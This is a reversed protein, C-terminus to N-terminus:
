SAEDLREQQPAGHEHLQRTVEMARITASLEKRRAEVLANVLRTQMTLVESLGDMKRHLDAIEVENKLNVQYDNQAVARDKAAQRNQSMLIVPAQLAALTSLTLNLLIFPFPDFARTGLYLNAGIWVAMLLCFSLIFRWSGAVTAIKDAMRDGFSAREDIEEYVDDTVLRPRLDGILRQAEPSLLSQLEEIEDILEQVRADPDDIPAAAIRNLLLDNYM